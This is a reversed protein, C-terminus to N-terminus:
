YDGITEGGNRSGLARWVLINISTPVLRVSGDCLAVEVGGPHYSQATTAIRGPPYMCSRTNPGSVHFYTTTSHYGELWPAGVDSRGQKSLDNVNVAACMTVSEDPTNPYTGPQYTDTLPTTIGDNFDGKGHESFAATNSLGDKIQALTRFKKPVFPGSPEPLTSNPGSSSPQGNLLGDGQNARYNTGAWGAPVDIQADSPCNFFSIQTACAGANSPDDWQANFNILNQANAQEMYPLLYAHVSLSKPSVSMPLVKMTDHHNHAALSFQKLNNVCQTRRGAERAAQVAPLLLSVLIGIIAIVVLLEVLTFGRSRNM